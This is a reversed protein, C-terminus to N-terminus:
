ESSILQDRRPFVDSSVVVKGKVMVVLSPIALLSSATSYFLAYCPTVEM